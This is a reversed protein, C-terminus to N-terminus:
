RHRDRGLQTTPIAAEANNQEIMTLAPAIRFRLRPDLTGALARNVFVVAKEPYAPLLARATRLAFEVDSV